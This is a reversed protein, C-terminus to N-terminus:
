ASKKVEAVFVLMDDKPKEAQAMARSMIEDALEQSSKIPLESLLETFYEEPSDYGDILLWERKRARLAM